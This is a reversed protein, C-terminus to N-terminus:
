RAKLNLPKIPKTCYRAVHGPEKCRLCLKNAQCYKFEEQSLRQAPTFQKGSKQVENPRYTKTNARGNRSSLANVEKIGGLDMANSDTYSNFNRSAHQGHQSIYTQYTINDIRQAKSMAQALTTPEALEVEVRIKEKLGRVYKDLKESEHIDNIELCLQTFDFNYKAVSNTQRLSALKDRAIKKANVPKFMSILGQQFDIWSIGDGTRDHSHMALNRWWTAANGELYTAALKPRDNEDLQNINAYQNFQFLWVEPDAGRLGDYTKPKSAKVSSRLQNNYQQGVNQGVQLQDVLTRLQQNVSELDRVQNQLPTTHQQVQSSILQRLQDLSMTASSQNDMNVESMGYSEVV